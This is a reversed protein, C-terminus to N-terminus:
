KKSLKMRLTMNTARRTQVNTRSSNAVSASMNSSSTRRPTISRKCPNAFNEIMSLKNKGKLSENSTRTNSSLTEVEVVVVVKPTLSVIRMNNGIKGTKATHNTIWKILNTLAQSAVVRPKLLDRGKKLTTTSGSRKNLQNILLSETIEKREKIMAVMGTITFTVERIIAPMVIIMDKMETIMVVMDTTTDGMERIMALIGKTMVTIETIM